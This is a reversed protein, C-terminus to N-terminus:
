QQQHRFARPSLGTFRKFAKSFAFESGYGVQQAVQALTVSDRLLVQSAIHMRWRTLYRNPAEGVLESFRVSFASRSMGVKHALQEVTWSREPQRHIHGLARAVHPDRLGSLWMGRHAAGETLWDRMAEVLLVDTLRKIVIESGPKPIELERHIMQILAAQRNDQRRSHIVPPLVSLLPHRRGQEFRFLGCILETQEGSGEIRLTGMSQDEEHRTLRGIPVAPTEPSDCLTHGTGHPLFIVDGANLRIPEGEDVGHPKMWAHGELVAHFLGHTQRTTHVGWPAQLWARSFVTSELRCNDLVDALADM